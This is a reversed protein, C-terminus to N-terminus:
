VVTKLQPKLRLTSIQSFDNSTPLNRRPAGSKTLMASNSPEMQQFVVPSSDSSGSLMGSGSQQTSHLTPLIISNCLLHHQYYRGKLQDIVYSHLLMAIQSWLVPCLNWGLIHLM